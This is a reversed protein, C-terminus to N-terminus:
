FMISTDQKPPEIRGEWAPCHLPQSAAADFFPEQCRKEERASVFDRVPGKAFREPEALFAQLNDESEFLLIRNHYVLGFQRAGPTSVNDRTLRVADNGDCAPAYREPVGLFEQRATDDAFLFRRGEYTVSFRGSGRQWRNENLLTVPCYGDMALPANRSPSSAWWGVAVAALAVTLFLERLTLKFM